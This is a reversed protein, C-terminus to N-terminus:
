ERPPEVDYYKALDAPMIHTPTRNFIAGTREMARAVLGSCIAQGEFGFTFKGGSLLSYAISAITLFGYRQRPGADTAGAAWEAFEVAQQRDEPSAGICVVHYEALRYKSIHTCLVGAGLAEVLDGTESRVFAAHDWHTYKRDSGHIRLAQGFRILKSTWADGHTLIFDGRQYAHPEEGPGYREVAARAVPAFSQREAGWM